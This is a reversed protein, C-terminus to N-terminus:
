LDASRRKGARCRHRDAEGSRANRCIAGGTGGRHNQRLALPLGADQLRRQLIASQAEGAHVRSGASPLQRQRLNEDHRLRWRPPPAGPGPQPSASASSAAAARPAASGFAGAMCSSVTAAHANACGASRATMTANPSRTRHRHPPRLAPRTHRRTEQVLSPSRTAELRPALRFNAASAPARTALSPSALSAPAEAIPLHRAPNLKEPPCPGAPASLSGTLKYFIKALATGVGESRRRPARPRPTSDAETPRGQGRQRRGQVLRFASRHRGPTSGSRLCCNSHASVSWCAM